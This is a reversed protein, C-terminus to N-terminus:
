KKTNRVFSYRKKKALILVDSFLFLHMSSKTWKLTSKGITRKASLQPLLKLVSGKKVPFLNSICIFNLIIYIIGLYRAGSVIPYSKIKTRFHLIKEIEILEQMRQVKKTEENCKRVLQNVIGLTKRSSELVPSNEPM